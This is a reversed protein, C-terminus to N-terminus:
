IEEYKEVHMAQMSCCGLLLQAQSGEQAHDSLGPHIYFNVHLGSQIFPTLETSQAQGQMTVEFM